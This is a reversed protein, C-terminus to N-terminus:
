TQLLILLLYFIHSNLTRSYISFINHANLPPSGQGQRGSATGAPPLGLWLQSALGSNSKFFWKAQLGFVFNFLKTTAGQQQTLLGDSISIVVSAGPQVQRIM